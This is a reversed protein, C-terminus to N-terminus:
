MGAVYSTHYASLGVDIRFWRCLTYVVGYTCQVVICRTCLVVHVYYWMCSTYAVGYTCLMVHMVHVCCRMSM